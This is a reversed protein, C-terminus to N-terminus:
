CLRGEALTVTRDLPLAEPHHTAVLLGAGRAREAEILAVVRAMGEADLHTLPEDLLLVQPAHVTACALGLRRREGASLAEAPGDPLGLREMAEEVDGQGHLGVLLGLVQRVTRDVAGLDGAWGLGGSVSVTGECRRLGACVLLLTSKGAGNAGLLGVVEGHAVSLDVGDLVWRGRQQRRLGRAELAPTLSV